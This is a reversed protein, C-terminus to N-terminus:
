TNQAFLCCGNGAHQQHLCSAGAVSAHFARWHVMLLCGLSMELAGILDDLNPCAEMRQAFTAWHAELVEIM